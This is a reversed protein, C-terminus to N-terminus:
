NRAQRILLFMKSDPEIAALTRADGRLSLLLGGFSCYVNIKKGQEESIKFVRGSMVYEYEDIVSANSPGKYFNDEGEDSHDHSLSSMLSVTLRDGLACPFVKNQELSFFLFVALFCVCVFPNCESNIDVVVDMDMTEGKCVIRSVRKLTKKGLPDIQMVTYVDTHIQTM